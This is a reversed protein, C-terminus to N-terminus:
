ERPFLHNSYSNVAGTFAYFSFATDPEDHHRIDDSVPHPKLVRDKYKGHHM